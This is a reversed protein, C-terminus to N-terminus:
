CDGGIRSIEHANDLMRGLKERLIVAEHEAQAHANRAAALESTLEDIKNQLKKTDRKWRPKIEENRNELANQTDTLQRSQHRVKDRLKDREATLENVQTQLESTDANLDDVCDQLIDRDVTMQDLKAKLEAIENRYKKNQKRITRNNANDANCRKFMGCETGICDQGGEFEYHSFKYPCLKM